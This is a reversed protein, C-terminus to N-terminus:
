GSRKNTVERYLWARALNWERLVTRESSGLVMATEGVSLGGFFRLEVVRSKREDIQALRTLAEDLALLDRSKGPQVVCGEDLTTEATGGGRKASGRARAADVLIRRMLQAAVAFFHARNEWHLKKWEILRIYAENILATTQLPHDAREGAMYRRALRRLEKQVRPVLRELAQRDGDSWAVLLNTLDHTEGGPM